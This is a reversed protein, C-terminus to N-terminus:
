SGSGAWRVGVNQEVCSDTDPLINRRVLDCNVLTAGWAAADVEVFADSDPKPVAPRTRGTRPDLMRGYAVVGGVSEAVEQPLESLRSLASEVRPTPLDFLGIDDECLYAWQAGRAAAAVLGARFGGAPGLNEELHEIQVQAALIADDLGGEGNIVVIIDEPAFGEDRILGRVM